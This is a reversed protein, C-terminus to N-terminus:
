ARLGLTKVDFLFLIHRVLVDLRERHFEIYEYDGQIGGIGGVSDEKLLILKKGKGYAYAKEDIIWASTTWEKKQAIKDRRTFVGVFLYQTEIRRRVKESVSGARPKEGTVVTIGLAELTETVCEVVAKDDNSFSHGVFASTHFPEPTTTQPQIAVTGRLQKLPVVVRLTFNHLIARIEGEYRGRQAFHESFSLLRQFHINLTALYDSVVTATIEPRVSLDSLWLDALNRAQQRLDQATVPRTRKAFRSRLSSRLGELGDRLRELTVILQGDIM